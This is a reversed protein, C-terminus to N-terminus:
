WPFHRLFAAKELSGSKFAGLELENGGDMSLMVVMGNVSAVLIPFEKFKLDPWHM